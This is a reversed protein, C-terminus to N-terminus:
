EDLGEGFAKLAAAKDSSLVVPPESGCTCVYEM